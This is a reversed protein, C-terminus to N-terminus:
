LVRGGAAAYRGVPPTVEKSTKVDILSPLGSEEARRLAGQLEGPARVTEGHAGFSRAIGAFDMDLFDTADPLRQNGPHLYRQVDYSFGFAANNLVITTVNTKLRLATELDALHYGMGGDGMLTFVRKKPAALQAGFGAPFAWGLSGAARLSVRGAAKHEILTGSWAAMYGTDAVLIDDGTLYDNIESLVYFPNLRGGVVPKGTQERWALRWDAVAKQVKKTWTAWRAPKGLGAARAAEALGVLSVRADACISIEERYSRGLNMPEVDIHAIRVGPKPFKFTDTGMAGLRSGVVVIFDSEALVDNSVKRSYRGCVGAALPHNEAIAGKGSITTVVPIDLAEALATLENWASSMLIGGGALLVPREAGALAKAVRELDAPLPASRISSVSMSGPEAYIEAKDSVEKGYWDSPISLYAPGPMGGTAARIATRMVDAIRDPAPLDAQFKTCSTFMPTQEMEQYEYKYKTNSDTASNIAILPSHAWFADILSIPLFATGCGYQAMGFTPKGTLRAYADGMAFASRETRGLVCKVGHQLQLEMLPDQPGGTLTFIYEAGYAKIMAAIAQSLNM